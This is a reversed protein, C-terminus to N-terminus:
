AGSLHQAVGSLDIPEAAVARHEEIVVRATERLQAESHGATVFFRLRASGEPVAPYLIPPASIGREFLAATLKAARISSGTIVPVIGAGISGGTDLGGERLLDRFLRGNRNLRAIREIEGADRPEAREIIRPALGAANKAPELYLVGTEQVDGQKTAQVPRPSSALPPEPGTDASPKEPKLQQLESGKQSRTM